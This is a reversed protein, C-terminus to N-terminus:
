DMLLPHFVLSGDEVFSHFSVHRSLQESSLAPLHRLNRIDYKGCWKGTSAIGKMKLLAGIDDKRWGNNVGELKDMTLLPLYPRVRFNEMFSAMKSDDKRSHKQAKSTKLHYQIEKVQQCIEGLFEMEEKRRDEADQRVGRREDELNQLRKNIQEFEAKYLNIDTKLDAFQQASLKHNENALILAKKISEQNASLLTKKVFLSEFYDPISDPKEFRNGDESTSDQVLQKQPIEFVDQIKVLNCKNDLMETKELGEVDSNLCTLSGGESHMAAHSAASHWSYSQSGGRTLSSSHARLERRGWFCGPEIEENNSQTHILEKVREDIKEIREWHSNCNYSTSEACECDNKGNFKQRLSFAGREVCSKKMCPEKSLINPMCTDRRTVGCCKTKEFDVDNNYFSINKPSEEGIELSPYGLSLLKHKYAEVQFELSALEMDKQYVLEELSGLSDEVHNIKEEAMRKYQHAEMKEAAREGQLRLIMSLAESAATASAEREKELEFYLDQILQQQTVITEKLAALENKDAVTCLSCGAM